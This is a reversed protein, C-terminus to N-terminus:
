KRPVNSIDYALFALIFQIGSLLLVSTLVVTGVSAEVHFVASHKWTILGKAFGISFLLLGLPLQISAVSVDRILYNYLFRKFSNLIHRVFFEPIVRFIKLNSREDSYKAPIDIDRVVARSISLRFLLDSEFFYRKNIKDLPLRELIRSNIATFGNTPDFINWYGTSIKNLLSLMANGMLRVKPM